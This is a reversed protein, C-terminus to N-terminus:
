FTRLKNKSEQWDWGKNKLLKKVYNHLKSSIRQVISKIILKNRILNM